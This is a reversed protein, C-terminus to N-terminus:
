LLHRLEGMVQSGTPSGLFTLPARPAAQAMDWSHEWAVRHQFPFILQRGAVPCPPYRPQLPVEHLLPPPQAMGGECPKATRPLARDVLGTGGVGRPSASGPPSASRPIPCSTHTGGLTEATSELWGQSLGVAALVGWDGDGAVARHEGPVLVSGRGQM